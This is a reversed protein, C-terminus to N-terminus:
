ALTASVGDINSSDPSAAVAWLVGPDHNYFCSPFYITQIHLPVRDAMKVKLVFTFPKIATKDILTILKM